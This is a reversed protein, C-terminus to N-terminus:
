KELSLCAAILEKPDVMDWAGCAMGVIDEVKEVDEDTIVKAKEM